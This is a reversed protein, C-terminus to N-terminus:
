CRCGQLYALFKEESNRPKSTDEHEDPIWMGGVRCSCGCKQEMSHTKGDSGLESHVGRPLFAVDPHVVAVAAITGCPERPGWLLEGLLLLGQFINYTLSPLSSSRLWTEKAGNM